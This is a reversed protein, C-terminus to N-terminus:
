KRTAELIYQTLKQIQEESLTTQAPMAGVGHRLATLIQQETLNMQDLNPGVKGQVQADDLTHCIGCAPQTKELFIKKGEQATSSLEKKSTQKPRKQTQKKQLSHTSSSTSLSKQSSLSPDILTSKKHEFATQNVEIMMGHDRWGSHGYGRENSLRDERQVDGKVTYARCYIQHKGKSLNVKTSFFRWAYVGLNPGVWETKRWTKGGDVSVEVREVEEEGGLAVGKLVQQGEPLVDDQTFWSKVSMGWMSPQSPHGSLGVKRLRYGSKQIKADTQEQTFAIHKVYKIQNCGYYGPVILRLPGGHTLPIAKGNMEWALMVDKLAKKKPISREVIVKKPDLGEPLPDGGTSTLYASEQDAGGLLDVVERLYVGTWMVCGAAGTAWPSGSPKHPYFARGNGSCQLVTTLTQIGLTKLKKLTLTQPRKVGKFEVEWADRNELISSSPLPLNNRVFLYKDHTILSNEIRERKSELTLPFTSHVIFDHANLGDPLDHMRQPNVQNPFESEAWSPTSNFLSKTAVAGLGLGLTKFLTRRSHHPLLPDEKHHLPKKSM